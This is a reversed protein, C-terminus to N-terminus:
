YIIWASHRNRPFLCFDTESLSLPAVDELVSAFMLNPNFLLLCLLNKETCWVPHLRLFRCFPWQIPFPLVKSVSEGNDNNIVLLFSRLSSNDSFILNVHMLLVATGSIRGNDACSTGNKSEREVDCSSELDTEAFNRSIAWMMTCNLQSFHTVCDNSFAVHLVFRSDQTEGRWWIRFCKALVQCVDSSNTNLHENWEWINLQFNNHSM